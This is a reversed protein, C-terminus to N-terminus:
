RGEGKLHLVWLAVPRYFAHAFKTFPMFILLELALVVHVLFAVYGWTPGTPLYVAVELIFGTLGVSWLLGLLLWDSLLTHAFPSQGHRLARSIISATTGYMLALGSLTGLLRAPYWLPVQSGPTKFLLDLATAGLLGLFGWMITLHLVRRSLYIPERIENEDIDCDQFNRQAALEKVTVFAADWARRLFSGEEKSVRSVEGKLNRAFSFVNAAAALGALAMVVIGTYHLLSLDIFGFLDMREPNLRGRSALLMMTFIAGLIGIFAITFAPSVYLRGALGTLDWASIFYRRASAMFEGPEAQRPCSDSCEGCYYCLWMERAASLRQRMGLQAFRVLRRPFSDRGQSLPCVATCNGCNFCAKVDFAGFRELESLFTPDVRVAM